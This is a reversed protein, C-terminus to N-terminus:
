KHENTNNTNRKQDIAKGDIELSYKKASLGILLGRYFVFRKSKDKNLNAYINKSTVNRYNNVFETIKDIHKPEAQGELFEEAIDRITGGKFDDIETEWKKLGFVSTKGIPVFGTDRRMSVRISNKDTMYDPNLEIVKQYIADVKSPKGLKELAEYSYEYVQKLNNHSFLINDNVDICLEFENLLINEAIQSINDLLNWCNEKQFDLLYTQFNFIYDEEIRESLRFALNEIWKEFDLVAACKKSILYTNQWNFSGYTNIKFLVSKEDGILVFRDPMIISLIKLVFQANFNTRENRNMENILDQEIVINDKGLDIGYLNM